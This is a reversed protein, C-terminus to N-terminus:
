PKLKFLWKIAEKSNETLTKLQIDGITAKGIPVEFGLKRMHMKVWSKFAQPRIPSDHFLADTQPVTQYLKPLLQNARDIDKAIVEFNKEVETMIDMFEKAMKNAKAWDKQVRESM